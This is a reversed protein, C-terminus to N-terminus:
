SSLLGKVIQVPASASNQQTKTRFFGQGKLLNSTESNQKLEGNDEIDKSSGCTLFPAIEEAGPNGTKTSSLIFETESFNEEESNYDIESSYNTAATSQKKSSAKSIRENLLQAVETQGSSLAKSYIVRLFKKEPTYTALDCLYRVIGPNKNKVALKLAEEVTRQNLSHIENECVYEVIDPIGMKVALLFAERIALKNPANQKAHCLTLFSAVQNKKVTWLLAQNMARQMPQNPTNLSCLFDLILVKGTKAATFLAQTISSQHLPNASLSCLYNIVALNENLVAEELGEELTVSLLQEPLEHLCQVLALNGKQCAKIFARHITQPRPAILPLNCLEKIVQLKSSNAAENFAKDIAAPSLMQKESHAMLLVINWHGLEIALNFLKNVDSKNLVKEFSNYFLQFTKLKNNTIVANLIHMLEISSPKYHYATLLYRTVKLQGKEAAMFIIKELEDEDLLANDNRCLHNVVDWQNAKAATKIAKNFAEPAIKEELLTILGLNGHQAAKIFVTKGEYEKEAWNTRHVPDNVLKEIIQRRIPENDILALIEILVREYESVERAVVSPLSLAEIFANLDFLEGHFLFAVEATKARLAYKNHLDFKAQPIILHLLNLKQIAEFWTDEILYYNAATFVPETTQAIICAKVQERIEKCKRDIIKQCDPYKKLQRVFDEDELLAPHHHLNDLITEFVLQASPNKKKAIISFLAMLQFIIESSTTGQTLNQIFDAVNEENIHTILKPKYPLLYFVAGNNNRFLQQATEDDILQALHGLTRPSYERAVCNIIGPLEDAIIRPQNLTKILMGLWTSNKQESAIAAILFNQGFLEHLALFNTSTLSFQVPYHKKSIETLEEGALTGDLAYQQFAQEDSCTKQAAQVLESAEPFHSLLAYLRSVENDESHLTFLYYKLYDHLLYTSLIDNTSVQRQVLWLILAAFLETDGVWERCLGTIGLPHKQTAFKDSLRALHLEVRKIAEEYKQKNQEATVRKIIEPHDKFLGQNAQYFSLITEKDEQLLAFFLANLKTPYLSNDQSLLYNLTILFLSCKSNEEFKKRCFELYDMFVNHQKLNTILDHTDRNSSRAVRIDALLRRNTKQAQSLETECLGPSLTQNSLHLAAKEDQLWKFLESILM